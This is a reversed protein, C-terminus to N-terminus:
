RSLAAWIGVGVGIVAAHALVVGGRVTKLRSSLVISTVVAYLALAISAFIAIGVGLGANFRQGVSDEPMLLAQGWVVLVAAAGIGLLAAHITWNLREPSTPSDM